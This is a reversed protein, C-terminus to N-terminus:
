RRLRRRQTAVRADVSFSTILVPADVPSDPGHLLAPVLGDAVISDFFDAWFGNVEPQYDGALLGGTTLGSEPVGPWYMRGRGSRGGLPTVKRILFATNPASSEGSIGGNLAEIWEGSGGTDNPGFKVTTSTWQVDDSVDTMIGQAAGNTRLNHAATTPDGSFDEINLGLTCEAGLPVGPGTFHFNAQAYNVPIIM